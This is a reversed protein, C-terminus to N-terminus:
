SSFFHRLKVPMTWFIMEKKGKNNQVDITTNKKENKPNAPSSVTRCFVM